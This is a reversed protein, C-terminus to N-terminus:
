KNKGWELGGFASQTNTFSDFVGSGGSKNNKSSQQASRLPPQQRNSQPMARQQQQQQPIQQQPVGYGGMNAAPTPSPAPATMGLFDNHHTNTPATQHHVPASNYVSADLDLLGASAAAPAPTPNVDLLNGTSTHASTPPTANTSVSPTDDFVDLLKEEVHAVGHQSTNPSPAASSHHSSIGPKPPATSSVNVNRNMLPTDNITEFDDDDDMGIRSVKAIISNRWVGVYRNDDVCDMWVSVAGKERDTGPILATKFRFHYNGPLPFSQKIDGLRPAFSSNNNSAKKAALYM